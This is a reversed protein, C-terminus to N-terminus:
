IHIYKFIYVSVDVYEEVDVRVGVCKMRVDTKM